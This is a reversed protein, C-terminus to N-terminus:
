HSNERGADGKQGQAVGLHGPHLPEGAAEDSAQSFQDELAEFPFNCGDEAAQGGVLKIENGEDELHHAKAPKNYAPWEAVPPRKGCEPKRQNHVGEHKEPLNPVAAIYDINWKERHACGGGPDKDLM